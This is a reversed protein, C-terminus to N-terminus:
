PRAAAHALRNTVLSASRTRYGIGAGPAFVTAARALLKLAAWAGPDRARAAAAGAAVAPAEGAEAKGKAEM